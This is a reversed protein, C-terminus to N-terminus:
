RRRRLLGLAGLALLGAAGPAPVPMATGVAVLDPGNFGNAAEIRIGVLNAWSPDLSLGVGGVQQAGSIELTDISWGAAASNARPVLVPSTLTQGAQIGYVRYDSNRGRELVALEVTSTDADASLTFGPAFLLDLVWAGNDEGDIIYSMNKYSGAFPGFVEALTGTNGAEGAFPTSTDARDPNGSISSGGSMDRPIPTNWGYTGVNNTLSGSAFNLFNAGGFLTPSGTFGMSTLERDGGHLTTSTAAANVGYQVISASALGSFAAVAIASLAISRSM